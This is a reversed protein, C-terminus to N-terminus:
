KLGERIMCLLLLMATTVTSAESADMPEFDM